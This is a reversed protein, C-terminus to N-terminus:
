SDGNASDSPYDDAAEADCAKCDGVVGHLACPMPDEFVDFLAQTPDCDCDCWTQMGCNAHDNRLCAECQSM